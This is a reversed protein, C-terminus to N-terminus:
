RRVRLNDGRRASMCLGFAFINGAIMVALILLLILM